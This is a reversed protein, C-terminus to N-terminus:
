SKKDKILEKLKDWRPDTDKNNANEQLKALKDIAKSKLTGDIIKPHIRKVPVSLIILEYIYQSIDIEYENHPLILVEENENNYEDGFKVILDLSGDLPQNFEEGSVDCNILVTGLINFRLEFLTNKKNFDLVVKITSDLFDDYKYVDFFTRKISYQFQHNGLKLGEFPIIYDKSSIMEFIKQAQM